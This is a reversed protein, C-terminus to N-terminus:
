PLVAELVKLYESNPYFRKLQNFYEMSKKKENLKHYAMTLYFLVQEKYKLNNLLNEFLEIADKFKGMKYLSLGRLYIVEDSYISVTINDLVKIARDYKGLGFWSKAIRLRLYDDMLKNKIKLANEYLTIAKNYDGNFYNIDGFVMDIYYVYPPFRKLKNVIDLAKMNNGMEVYFKALVASKCEDDSILHMIKEVMGTEGAFVLGWSLKCLDAGKPKLLAAVSYLYNIEGLSPQKYFQELMKNICEAAMKSGEKNYESDPYLKKLKVLYKLTKKCNKDMFNKKAYVYLALSVVDPDNRYKAMIEDITKESVQGRKLKAEDMLKRAEKRLKANKSHKLIYAGKLDLDDYDGKKLDCKMRDIYSYEVISEVRTSEMYDFVKEAQKYDEFKCLAVGVDGLEKYYVKPDISNMRNSMYYYALVTKAYDKMRYFCEAALLMSLPYYESGKDINLFRDLANRCRNEKYYSLGLLFKAEEAWKTGAFDKIVRYYINRAAMFMKKKEYISAMSFLTQVVAGNKPALKIAKTYTRLALDYNNMNRYCDGLLFYASIFFPSEPYKNIIERFFAAALQYNKIYFARVGSFFLTEDYSVKSREVPSFTNESVYFPTALLSVPPPILRKGNGRNKKEKLAEVIVTTNDIKYSPIYGRNCEIVIQSSNDNNELYFSHFYRDNLNRGFLEKKLLKGPFYAVFYRGRVYLKARKGVGTIKFFSKGNEKYFSLEAASSSISLIFIM